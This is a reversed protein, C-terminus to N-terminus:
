SFFDHFTNKHKSRSELSLMKRRNFAANWIESTAYYWTGSRNSHYANM